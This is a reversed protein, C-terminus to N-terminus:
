SHQSTAIVIKGQEVVVEALIPSSDVQTAALIDGAYGLALLNRGGRSAELASRLQTARSLDGVATQWAAAALEAEDNTDVLEVRKARLGSVVAGAFLVDESTIHRDTGACVLAVDPSNALEALLASYNVFAGLLVRTGGRCAQIARTGNTTTMVVTKGGVSQHTYEAPSNGLEFDPIPRGGREGGLVADGRLDQAIKRAEDIERCPIVDRAGSWLAQVITTTARLIDIVVVTRGALEAPSVQSPLFYVSLRM